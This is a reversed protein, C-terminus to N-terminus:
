SDVRVPKAEELSSDVPPQPLSEAREQSSCDVPEQSSRERRDELFREEVDEPFREAADAALAILAAGVARADDLLRARERWV